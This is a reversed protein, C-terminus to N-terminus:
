FEEPLSGLLKHVRNFLKIDEKLLVHYFVELTM